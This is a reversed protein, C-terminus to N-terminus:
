PRLPLRRLRLANMVVSVSSLAMAGGAIVPNLFGIAAVPISIVNYLLAWFLNQKINRMTARSLNIINIIGELNSHMLVIAATEMAIDTGSGMAIGIDATALAPADNIGDGVMAVTKGKRKLIEIELAKDEPLVEAIFNAIGARAAIAQATATSDGTIMWVELGQEQLTKIVQAANEKITDMIGLVGYVQGDVALVISTKGERALKELTPQAPALDIQHEELLRPNGIILIQQNDILAIIGKGPEVFFEQPPEISFGKEEAAQVIPRALPHESRKEARASLLLIHNKKEEEEGERREEKKNKVPVIDTLKLQGTTLTGTKDLVITDLRHAKELYEGGRILIGKEAGRGTAVLISTPTALGLACPCAIVLVAIANMLARTLNGADVIFYWVVFTGLAICIVAPVFYSAITDALRQIPAKQGQAEQVLRIIQALTTDKGVRGAEMILVGFKNVTGGILLDGSKKDVPISEGTLMSEDVASNGELVIGDVPIREGPHIIIRDGIEVEETPLEIEKGDRIVKATRPQLEMLQRIARSARGKSINELLKGLLVLTILLASTEFYLHGAPHFFAIALSYFYAASTGLSVLVDMNASKGKLAYYTGRYFPYGGIFQIPTALAIQLYPSSLIGAHPRGSLELIMLAVLPLSLLASFIFLRTLRQIEGTNEEESKSEAATADNEPVIATYGLQNVAQAVENLSLVAPDYTFIAKELALNVTATEVGPLSKIKQEVRSACAACHMGKVSLLAKKM